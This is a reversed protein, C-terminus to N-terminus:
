ELTAELQTCSDTPKPNKEAHILFLPLRLEVPSPYGSHQTETAEKDSCYCEPRHKWLTLEESSLTITKTFFDNNYPYEGGGGKKKKGNRKAKLIGTSGSYIKWDRTIGLKRYNKGGMTCLTCSRIHSNTDTQTHISCCQRLTALSGTSPLMNTCVCTSHVAVSLVLNTYDGHVAFIWSILTKTKTQAVTSSRSACRKSLHTQPLYIWWPM